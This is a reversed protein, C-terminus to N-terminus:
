AVSGDGRLPGVPPHHLRALVVRHHLDKNGAEGCSWQLPEKDFCGACLLYGPSLWAGTFNRSFEHSCCAHMMWWRVCIWVSLSVAVYMRRCVCVRRCFFLRSNDPLLRVLLSTRVHRYVLAGAYVNGFSSCSITCVTCAGAGVHQAAHHRLSAPNTLICVFARFYVCLFGACM